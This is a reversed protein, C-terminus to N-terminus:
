PCDLPASFPYPNLQFALIGQFADALSHVMNPVEPEFDLWDKNENQTSQFAKIQSFVDVLSGTAGNPPDGPNGGGTVDGNHAPTPLELPDSYNGEDGTDQGEAIAQILYNNGTSVECDGFHLYPPILDEWTDYVPTDVIRAINFASIGPGTVLQLGVTGNFGLVASGAVGTDLSVRYARPTGVSNPNDTKISLYRQKAVYCANDVGDGTTDRCVTQPDPGTEGAKCDADTSCSKVSLAVDFRDDALPPSVPGTCTQTGPVLTLQMTGLGQSAQWGGMAIYYTTDPCAGFSVEPMGGGIGCTDDGCAIHDNLSVPCGDAYVSMLGDYSGGACTSITLEGEETPGTTYTYWNVAGIQTTTPNGGPTILCLTMNTFTGDGCFSTDFTSRV